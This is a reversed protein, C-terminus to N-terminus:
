LVSNRVRDAIDIFPQSQPTDVDVQTFPHSADIPKSYANDLPIAGLLPIDELIKWDDYATSYVEIHEGCNPCVMYSMNEIRGLIDVDLSRFFEISRGTDLLTMEQPTTVLLTGNVHASKLVIKLFEGTGPPLDVVLFDLEGWAVSRLVEAVLRGGLSSSDEAASRESFWLGLSMVELGYKTLPKILHPERNYLPLYPVRHGEKTTFSFPLKEERNRLGLMLPVNPGYLDADFLGVRSGTRRLAMALNVAVTTKGVGGKCSGVAIVHKINKANNM